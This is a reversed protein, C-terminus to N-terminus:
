FTIVSFRDDLVPALVPRVDREWNLSGNGCGPRPLLIYRWLGLIRSEGPCNPDDDPLRTIGGINRNVLDVLECASRYILEIDEYLDWM